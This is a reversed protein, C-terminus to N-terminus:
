EINHSRTKSGTATVVSHTQETQSIGLSRGSLEVFRWLYSRVEV